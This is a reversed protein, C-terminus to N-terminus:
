TFPEPLLPNAVLRLTTEQPSRAGPDSLGMLRELTRQGDKGRSAAALAPGNLTTCQWLAYPLKSRPM